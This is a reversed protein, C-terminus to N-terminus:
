NIQIYKAWDSSAIMFDTCFYIVCETASLPRVQGVSPVTTGQSFGSLLWFYGKFVFM